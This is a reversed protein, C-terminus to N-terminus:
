YNKYENTKIGRAKGKPLIECRKRKKGFAALM